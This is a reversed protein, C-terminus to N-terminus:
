RQSIRRGASALKVLARNAKPPKGLAAWIDDFFASPVATTTETELVKEASESAADLM